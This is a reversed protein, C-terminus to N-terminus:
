LKEWAKDEEPTDWDKKLCPESAKMIMKTEKENKLDDKHIIRYEHEFWGKRQKQLRLNQNMVVEAAEKEYYKGERVWDNNKGLAWYWPWYRRGGLKKGSEEERKKDEALMKEWSEKTYRYQLHWVKEGKHKAKPKPVEPAPLRKKKKYEEREAARQTM